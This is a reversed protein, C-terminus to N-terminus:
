KDTAESKGRSRRKKKQDNAAEEWRERKVPNRAVRGPIGHKDWMAEYTAVMKPVSSTQRWTDFVESMPDETRRLHRAIRGRFAKIQEQYEPDDILNKLCHPDSRLDFFEAPVRTLLYESRTAWEPDTKGLKLMTKFISGGMSSTAYVPKGNHWPNFVFMSQTDQLARMQYNTQGIKMYYQTFIHDRGRQKEGRFLPALSRGDLGEPSDIGAFEAITPLLDMSSVIHEAEVRDAPIHGDWRVIFPTRTSQVYCNSKASPVAMGHDSLFVIMTSQTLQRDELLKVIRGVVDDCRRVSSFYCAQEYRVDPHDPITPHIPIEDPQFVRTPDEGTGELKRDIKFYPRHPDHSNVVLFFPKKQALSDDVFASTEKEFEDTDRGMEKSVDWPTDEYPTSHTVKGLLGVRYGKDHMLQPLNTVDPFRLHFFGEGGSRHGRRGTMIAMRSPTCATSGVHAHEFRIGQKALRDINPTVSELPCGYCGVSDWNMDDATILLLNVRDPLDQAPLLTELLLLLGISSVLQFARMNFGTRTEESSDRWCCAYAHRSQDQRQNKVEFMM